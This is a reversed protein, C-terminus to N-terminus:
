IDAWIILKKNKDGSAIGNGAPQWAVSIVNAEHEQLHARPKGPNNINWIFISGDNSGVTIYESDPSFVARQFDCGVRFDPAAFLTVPSNPARLDLLSLSDDRTCAILYQGNKALDVSTIRDNLAITKTLASEMRCDYFRINKDFHGSIIMQDQCALDNVLSGCTLTKICARSRLDWVRITRDHSGSCIKANDGMFKAAYVKGNHGTLTHRLRMNDLSWVRCTNDFSGALLLSASSDFDVSMIAGSSGTLMGRHEYSGKSVDWIKIKRDEGGTVLISGHPSWKVVNIGSEHANWQLYPRNPIRVTHCILSNLQENGVTHEVENTEVLVQARSDSAAEELQRRLMDRQQEQFLDNEMNMRAVDKEKLDMVQVVLIENEKQVKVLKKEASNLALQLAQYEDKLLQNTEELESMNVSMQEITRRLDEVQDEFALLKAAQENIEGDKQKVQSSMDIVLQANEGKRRHLETLEEQLTYLKRKLEQVDQGAGLGGMPGGRPVTDRSQFLLQTNELQLTTAKEVLKTQLAILEAYPRTERHNREQVQSLISLRWPENFYNAM